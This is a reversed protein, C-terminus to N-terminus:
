KKTVSRYYFIIGLGLIIWGILFLSFGLYVGITPEIWPMPPDIPPGPDILIWPSLFWMPAGIILLIGGLILLIRSRDM